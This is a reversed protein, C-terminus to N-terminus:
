EGGIAQEVAQLCAELLDEGDADDEESNITSFIGVNCGKHEFLVIDIQYGMDQLKPFVYEALFNLDLAPHTSWETGDSWLWFVCIFDDVKREVKKFGAFELIKWDRDKM